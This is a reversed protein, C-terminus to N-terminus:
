RTLSADENQAPDTRVTSPPHVARHCFETPQNLALGDAATVVYVERSGQCVVRGESGNGCFAESSANFVNFQRRQM